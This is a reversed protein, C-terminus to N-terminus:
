QMFAIEFPKQMKFLTAQAATYAVDKKLRRFIAMMSMSTCWPLLYCWDSGLVEVTKESNRTKCITSLIYQAGSVIRTIEVNRKMSTPCM